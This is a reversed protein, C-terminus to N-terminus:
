GDRKGKRYKALPDVKWDKVFTMWKEALQEWPFAEYTFVLKQRLISDHIEVNTNEIELRDNEVMGYDGAQPFLAGVGALTIRGNQARKEQQGIYYLIINNVEAVVKGLGRSKGSGMRILGDCMDRLVFGILGLQWLEFNQLHLATKFKGGTIVEMEFKAGHAAGGTFRDIGVGDRHEPQPPDGVAYADETALRGMLFTNGFLRCIPCSLQYVLPTNLEAESEGKNKKMMELATGCSRHEDDKGGLPNCAAIEKFTRAIREAHSRITGKLSSGPLFPELNGNRPVTVWAMDVGSVQALGSKILLAGEPRITLDIICENLLRKFM